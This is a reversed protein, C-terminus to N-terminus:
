QRIRLDDIVRNVGDVQRVAREAQEKQQVSDVVGRLTIVQGSADVDVSSVTALGVDNALKAKVKAILAAQRLKAGAKHSEVRVDHAVRDVKGEAQSVGNSAPASSNVADGVKRNLDRADQEIEHGLKKADQTLHEAARNAKERAQQERERAKEKDSPSCGSVVLLCLFCPVLLFANRFMASQANSVPIGPDTVFLM